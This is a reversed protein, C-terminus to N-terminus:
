RSEGTTVPSWGDITMHIGESIATVDSPSNSRATTLLGLNAAFLLAARTDANGPTLEGRQQALEITDRLSSQLSTRWDGFRTEIDFPESALENVSMVMLCGLPTSGSTAVKHMRGAWKHLGDVGLDGRLPETLVDSGAVYHALVADFLQSKTGFTNYVSSTSLGTATCIDTQTTGSYGSTWFLTVLRDLVENRDFGLPRGGTTTTM